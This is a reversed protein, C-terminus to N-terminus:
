STSLGLLKARYTDNWAARLRKTHVSDKTGKDSRILNLALHRLTAFNEPADFFQPGALLGVGVESAAARRVMM